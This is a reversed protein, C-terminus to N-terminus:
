LSATAPPGAPNDIIKRGTADFLGSAYLNWLYVQPWGGFTGAQYTRYLKAIAGPQTWDTHLRALDRSLLGEMGALQHQFAMSFDAKSRRQVISDPLAGRLAQVHIYKHTGGRLRLNEPLSMMFQVMAATNLPSRAELGHRSYMREATELCWVGYPDHLTSLLEQQSSRPETTPLLHQRRQALVAARAPALWQNPDLPPERKRLAANLGRLIHQVAHPLLAFGGYRLLWYLASGVGHDAVDARWSQKLGSWDLGRLGDAYYLRTGSLWEDGGRGNFIVRSGVVAGALLPEALAFNPHPPFDLTQEVQQTFWDLPPLLPKVANIQLRLFAALDKIFAMEDARADMSCDMTWATFGPSLLGQQQQLQASLGLIASSDLGGSVEIALPRHSRSLRRINDQLLSRYSEIYEQETKCPLRAALDPQWYCYREISAAGVTMAHAAPLRLIGQWLTEERSCWSAAMCEVLMSENIARRLQPLLVIAALDSAFVLSNGSQHYYFPKNGMRDRACFASRAKVDWIVLAFDGEIYQLCDRGWCEYALLVLEADARSRPVLGQDLLRKRLEQWNDVRGDMVLVLSADDNTLPLIEERSEATTQLMCHGLAVSHQRWHRIGDPGRYRMRETMREILAPDLPAGDFNVIGAIGSM